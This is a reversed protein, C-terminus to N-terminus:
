KRAQYTSKIRKRPLADGSNARKRPRSSPPTSSPIVSSTATPHGKIDNVATLLVRDVDKLTRLCDVHEEEPKSELLSCWWSMLVVITYIGTRGGFRVSPIGGPPCIESWWEMIQHGLTHAEANYDRLYNHGNKHFVGVVKPRKEGPFGAPTQHDHACHLVLWIPVSVTTKFGLLRELEYWHEIVDSLNGLKATNRFFDLTNKERMWAPEDTVGALPKSPASAIKQTTSGSGPPPVLSGEGAQLHPQGSTVRQSGTVLPPSPRGTDLNPLPTDLSLEPVESTAAASPDLQLPEDGAQLKMAGLRDSIPSAQIYAAWDWTLPPDLQDSAHDPHNSTLGSRTTRPRNLAGPSRTPAVAPQNSPVVSQNPQITLQDPLDSSGPTSPTM